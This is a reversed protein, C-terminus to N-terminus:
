GVRWVIRAPIGAEYELQQQMELLRAYGHINWWANMWRGQYCTQIVARM